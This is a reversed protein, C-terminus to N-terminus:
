NEEIIADVPCAEKAEVTKSKLDEPINKSIEESVVESKFEDNYKFVEPCIDICMGCGICEEQNVNIKMLFDRGRLFDYDYPAVFGKFIIYLNESVILIFFGLM